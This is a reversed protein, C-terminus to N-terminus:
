ADAGSLKRAARLVGIVVLSLLAAQLIEFPWLNHSTPDLATGLVIRLAVFGIMVAPVAAAVRWGGRWRRIAWVPAAIGLVGVALISLMFGNFFLTEGITPPTSMRKEFEEREVRENENRLDVVWAPENRAEAAPREGSTINVPYTAVLQTGSRSGDGATIRVEDVQRGAEMFFFWGLAEGSGTFTRSPNSGAAVESGHFYPRAWIRVPEDTAYAIRLYFTDGKGLTVIDGPPDSELVRVTTEAGADVASTSLACFALLVLAKPKHM